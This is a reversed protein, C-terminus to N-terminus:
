LQRALLNGLIIALLCTIVSAAIYLSGELIKQDSFLSVTEYSFTSFTSFGGCLGITLFLKTKDDVIRNDALGIFLGLLICAIINAVLTGVPFSSTNYYKRAIEATFLRLCGGMGSGMFVLIWKM